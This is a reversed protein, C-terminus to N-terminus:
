PMVWGAPPVEVALVTANWPPRTSGPVELNAPLDLGLVVVAVKQSNSFSVWAHMFQGPRVVPGYCPPMSGGGPWFVACFFPGPEVAIRDIPLRVPAVALEVAMRASPCPDGVLASPLPLSEGRCAFPRASAIPGAATAGPASRGLEMSIGVALTLAVALGALLVPLGRWRGGRTAGTVGGTDTGLQATREASGGAVVIEVPKGRPDQV